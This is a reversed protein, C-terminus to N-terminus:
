LTLQRVTDEAAKVKAEIEKDLKSEATGIEALRDEQTKLTALYRRGLDSNAGVSQLNSRVRQQDQVIRDREGELQGKQARAKNMEEVLATLRGITAKLAPTENELGRIRVLMDEVDLDTLVISERDLRETVFRAKTTQGKPATITHRYRTPTEEVGKVDAAPAWGAVREEEVVIIRDQDPPATVEYDVTRRSQTQITLTGNLAKGLSTQVVGKDDRRIATRTDVAFTALRTADKPTLPLLADGVFNTGGDATNEFATVLGAPLATDGDNKLRVAALPQNPVIDPQYLWIREVPIERDMFPVMMTHGTALSLKAPFRYLLQTAAEEAAALNAPTAAPGASAPAVPSPAAIAPASRTLRQAALAGAIQDARFQAQPASSPAAKEQVDDIRPVVRTGTSVPVEPRNAFLATYLPQRLAVPNGSVLTLEVDKWDGGTLNEIVAWGQLRAKLAEKADTSGDRGTEKPLVIRYATKWVPAAVVYSIAVDRAGEGLFGVSLTRRDKARNEILGQLLREIQARTQPDTFRLETVEELIAQTLGAPTMLTLRHRTTTGGNNPLTVQERVVRFVRGKATVPGAIEIESGTLANLLDPSSNLAEPGFPLDRFLEPLPTKGPLSVTGVAGARDFVTLSKLIDDVQDLRVPLAITSNGSVPGGFTFQALGSNSLVVEKLPLEAAMAPSIAAVTLMAAGLVRRNM